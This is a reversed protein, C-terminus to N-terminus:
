LLCVVVSTMSGQRIHKFKLVLLGSTSSLLFEQCWRLPRLSLVSIFTELASNTDGKYLRPANVYTYLWVRAGFFDIFLSLATDISLLSLLHPSVRTGGCYEPLHSLLIVSLELGALAASLTGPWGSSVASGTEPLVFLLVLLCCHLLSSFVQRFVDKSVKSKQTKKISICLKYM